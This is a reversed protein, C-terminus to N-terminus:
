SNCDGCSGKIYNYLRDVFMSSQVILKYNNIICNSEIKVSYIPIKYINEEKYLYDFLNSGRYYNIYYIKGNLIIKLTTHKKDIDLICDLLLYPFNNIVIMNSNFENFTFIINKFSIVNNSTIKSYNSIGVGGYEVKITTNSPIFYVKENYVYWRVVGKNLLKQKYEFRNDLLTFTEINKFMELYIDQFHEIDILSGLNTNMKLWKNASFDGEVRDYKGMRIEDSSVIKNNYLFYIKLNPDFFHWENDYFVEIGFHDISNQGKKGLYLVRYKISFIDLIYSMFLVFQKCFGYGYVNILKFIDHVEIDRDLNERYDYANYSHIMLSAMNFSHLTIDKSSMNNLFAVINEITVMIPMKDIVIDKINKIVM